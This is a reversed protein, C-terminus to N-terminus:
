YNNVYEITLLLADIIDDAKEPQRALADAASGGAKGIATARAPDKMVAVGSYGVAVLEFIKNYAEPQRAVADMASSGIKSMATSRGDKIPFEIIRNYCYTSLDKLKGAAEPQRAIADMLSSGIKGIFYADYPDTSINIASVCISYQQILENKVEPQRAIADMLSSAVKGTGFGRMASIDYIFNAVFATYYETIVWDDYEDGLLTFREGNPADWTYTAQGDYTPAEIELDSFRTGRSVTIMKTKSGDSFYGIGADLMVTVQGQKCSALPVMILFLAPLVLVKKKM